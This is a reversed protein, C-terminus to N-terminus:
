EGELAGELGLVGSSEGLKAAANSDPSPLKMVTENEEATFTALKPLPTNLHEYM